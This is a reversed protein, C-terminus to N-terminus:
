SLLTKYFKVLHNILSQNSYHTLINERAQIGIRQRSEQDKILASLEKTFEEGTNAIVINEGNQYTIGEAGISTSVIPCGCAMGEIIKIRMGSGSHLPVIMIGHNCIFDQADEIEGLIEIGEEQHELFHEPMNKGAIYFTLNKNEKKLQPWSHEIFWKIAEQNPTWDLSGLHFIKNNQSYDTTKYENTDVGTSSIFINKHGLKKFYPADIQTIPVIADFKKSVVDEYAKLKKALSELYRKKYGTAQEARRKWILYEINHSRLVTKAKPAFEKVTDLLPSVYLGEFHIIDFSNNLLIAKLDEKAKKDNFREINYSTSKFLSFFVQLPKIRTDIFTSDVNNNNLAKKIEDDEINHKHTNLVFMSLEVNPNNQFGSSVNYMAIAGGDNAPVQPRFCLQLIKM